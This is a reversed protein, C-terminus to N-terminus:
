TYQRKHSGRACWNFGPLVHPRKYTGPKLAFHKFRFICVRTNIGSLVSPDDSDSSKTTKFLYGYEIYLHTASLYLIVYNDTGTEQENGYHYITYM